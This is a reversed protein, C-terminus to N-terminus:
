LWPRWAGGLNAPNCNPDDQPYRAPVSFDNFAKLKTLLEIVIAHHTETMDNREEPDETINFLWINKSENLAESFDGFTVNSTSAPYFRHIEQRIGLMMLCATM